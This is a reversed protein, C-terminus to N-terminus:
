GSSAGEVLRYNCVIGQNNGNMNKPIKTLKALTNMRRKGVEELYSKKIGDYGQKSRIQMIEEGLIQEVEWCGVGPALNYKNTVIKIMNKM